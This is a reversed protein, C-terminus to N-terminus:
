GFALLAIISGGPSTNAAGRKGPGAILFGPLSSFAYPVLASLTGLLIIFTFLDVLGRSSNLAILVTTLAGSVILGFAPTGRSSTRCSFLTQLPATRRTM